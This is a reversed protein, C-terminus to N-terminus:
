FIFLHFFPTSSYEQTFLAYNILLVWAIKEITRSFNSFYYFLFAYLFLGIFGFRLLLISSGCSGQLKEHYNLKHLSTTRLDVGLGLLPYQKITAWDLKLSASRSIDIRIDQKMAYAVQEMEGDSENYEYAIKNYLFDVQLFVITVLMLVAPIIVVSLQQYTKNQMIFDRLLISFPILLSLVGMTSQTTLIAIFFVINKRSTVSEKRQFINLFYTLTLVTVYAGPEWMFGANRLHHIPTTTYIVSSVWDFEGGGMGFVNNLRYVTDFSILQLPYIVLSICAFVFLVNVFYDYFHEKALDRCYYALLISIFLGIYTIPNLAENQVYYYILIAIFIGFLLGLKPKILNEFYFYVITFVVWGGIVFPKSTVLPNAGSSALMIFIIIAYSFFKRPEPFPIM